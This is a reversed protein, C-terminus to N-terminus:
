KKTKQAQYFSKMHTEKFISYKGSDAESRM